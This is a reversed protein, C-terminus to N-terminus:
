AASCEQEIEKLTDVAVKVIQCYYAALPANSLIEAEMAQKTMNAKAAFTTLVTDGAFTGILKKLDSM